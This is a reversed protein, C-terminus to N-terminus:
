RREAGLGIRICYTGLVAMVVCVIPGAGIIQGWLSRLLPYAMFVAAAEGPQMTALRGLLAAGTASLLVLIFGLLAIAPRAGTQPWHRRGVGPYDLPLPIQRILRSREIRADFAWALWSIGIAFALIFSVGLGLPSM